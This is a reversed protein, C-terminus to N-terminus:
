QVERGERVERVEQVAGAHLLTLLDAGEAEIAARDADTWRTLPELDLSPWLGPPRSAGRAAACGTWCCTASGSTRARWPGATSRSCAPATTTAWCSTTTSRSSACRPRRRPTPVPRTPFTSSRAAPRTPSRGFVRPGLREFVEGLRTLGCWAQADLVSAPGFAALYRWVLDDVSPEPELPAGLFDELPAFRAAGSRGWVGRPPVQVFAGYGRVANGLASPDRGPFREALLRGLELPGRPQERALELGAATFAELDLGELHRHFAGRM